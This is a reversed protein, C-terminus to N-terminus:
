ILNLNFLKSEYERPQDVFPFMWPSSGFTTALHRADDLPIPLGFTLGSIMAKVPENAGLMPAGVAFYVSIHTRIWEEWHFAGKEHKLWELFYRFVNNGLSHAIVVVGFTRMPLPTALKSSAQIYKRRLDQVATEINVMLKYFYNDREQLLTPPLRFDYPAPIFTGPDYDFAEALHRIIVQWISTLWGTILGPDLEGIADIGQVPRSKCSGPLDTQNKWDLMMCNLWCTKLGVVKTTDLWVRDNVSFGLNGICTKARWANLRSSAFGPIMVVPRLFKPLTNTTAFPDFHPSSESRERPQQQSAEESSSSEAAPKSESSSIPTEKLPENDGHEDQQLKNQEQKFNIFPTTSVQTSPLIEGPPKINTLSWLNLTESSV